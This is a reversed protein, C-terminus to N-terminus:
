WPSSGGPAVDYWERWTELGCCCSPSIILDGARVMLGGPLILDDARELARAVSEVSGFSAVDNYTALIAVVRAVDDTTAGADLEVWERAANPSVWDFAHECWLAEVVPILELM